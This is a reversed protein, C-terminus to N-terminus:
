STLNNAVALRQSNKTRSIHSDVSTGLSRSGKPFKQRSPKAMKSANIVVTLTDYQLEEFKPNSKTPAQTPVALYLLIEGCLFALYFDYFVGTM